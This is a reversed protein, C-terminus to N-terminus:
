GRLVDHFPNLLLLQKEDDLIELCIPQRKNIWIHKTQGLRNTYGFSTTKGLECIRYKQNILPRNQADFIRFFEHYNELHKPQHEKNEIEENCDSWGVINQSSLLTCGCTLSCGHYAVAEGLVLYGTWGQQVTQIDHCCQAKMGRSVIPRGMITSQTTGELVVGGSSTRDGLCIYYKM